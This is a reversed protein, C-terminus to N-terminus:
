ASIEMWSEGARSSALTAEIFRNGRVGAEIGPLREEAGPVGHIADAFGRYPNGHGRGARRIDPPLEARRPALEANFRQGPTFLVQAARRERRHTLIQRRRLSCM